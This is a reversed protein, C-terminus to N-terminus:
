IGSKSTNFKIVNISLDKVHTFKAIDQRSKISHFYYISSPNSIFNRTDLWKVIGKNERNRFILPCIIENSTKLKSHIEFNGNFTYIRDANLLQGFVVASFGGASSGLAIVRYGKTENKLFTFLKEPTNIRSNIGGLHWQKQIDRLFIHKYGFNIRTKYWEFRKGELLQKKFAIDANPYYLDNSSFYIICYENQISDSYEILYNDQNQYAEKVIESDVQFSYHEKIIEM